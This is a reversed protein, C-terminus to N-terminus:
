RFKRQVRDSKEIEPLATYILDGVFQLSSPAMKDITDHPTHWWAQLDKAADPVQGGEHQAPIRWAFDILLVSPIGARQFPLHDDTFESQYTYMRQKQGIQEAASKFTDQLAKNSNGDRDIKIDKDGILDALVMAGVRGVKNAKSLERVFHNSGFLAREDDWDYAISEEGDFWVFWLNPLKYDLGGEALLKENRAKTVRALELMVASAGAGDIAGKFEFNHEPTDHGHTLKTDYHAGLVIYAGNEPDSGPVIVHVNRFEITEGDLKHERGNWDKTFTQEVPELGITRLENMLWAAQKKQAASGAPRPGFGVMTKVHDFATSGKFPTKAGGGGGCATLGTLLGAAAVLALSIPLPRTPRIMPPLTAAIPGM